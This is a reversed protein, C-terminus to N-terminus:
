YPTQHKPGRGATCFAWTVDRIAGSKASGSRFPFTCLNDSKRPLFTSSNVQADHHPQRSSKGPQCVRYASSFDLFKSITETAWSVPPALAAPGQISFALGSYVTRTSALCSTVRNYSMTFTGVATHISSFPRM